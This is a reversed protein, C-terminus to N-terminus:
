KKARDFKTAHEECMWLRPDDEPWENPDLDVQRVRPQPCKFVECRPNWGAGSWQGQDGEWGNMIPRHTAPIRTMADVGVPGGSHLAPCNTMHETQHAFCTCRHTEEYIIRRLDDLTLANLPTNDDVVRNRSAGSSWDRHCDRCHSQPGPGWWGHENAYACRPCNPDRM